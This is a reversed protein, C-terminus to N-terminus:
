HRAPQETQQRISDAIDRFHKAVALSEEEDRSEEIPFMGIEDGRHFAATREWAGARSEIADLVQFVDAASLKLTYVTSM